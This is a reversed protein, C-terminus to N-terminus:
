KKSAHVPRLTFVNFLNFKQCIMYLGIPGYIGALMEVMIHITPVSLHFTKQLLVRTGASFITHSVFIELSLLGWDNLFKAFNFQKLFNALSLSSFIGAFALFPVFINVVALNLSIAITTLLFGGAMGCILHLPTLRNLRNLAKTESIFAGTAFYIANMRLMYLVGWSGFGTGLLHAAYLLFCVFCFANISLKLKRFVAYGISLIFLLYLFWFQMVPQYLIRWINEISEPSAGTLKRTIEQLISWLFYPYAITQLKNVLFTKFPRSVSREIFLGSIFFFLPMHFAYIWADIAQEQISPELIYSSVLGRLTHGLVVLFIGIGKAYDIWVIRNPSRLLDLQLYPSPVSDAM